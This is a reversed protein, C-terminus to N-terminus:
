PIFDVSCLPTLSIFSIRLPLSADYVMRAQGRGENYTYGICVILRACLSVCAIPRHVCATIHSIPKCRTEEGACTIRAPCGRAPAFFLSLEEVVSLVYIKRNKNTVDFM